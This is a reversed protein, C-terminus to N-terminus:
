DACFSQETHCTACNFGLYDKGQYSDKVFGVPLGDPNFVTPKQILYRFRDLNSGSHFFQRTGTDPDTHQLALFFDYPVINSGQTVNYFWLSDSEAWGQELYVPIRHSEGLVTQQAAVAGRDTDRDAHQYAKGIALIFLTPLMAVALLLLGFLCLAKLWGAWGLQQPGKKLQQYETKLAAKM